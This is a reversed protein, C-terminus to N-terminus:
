RRRSSRIAAAGRGRLLGADDFRPRCWGGEAAREALAAAVDLRALADAAAAIPEARGLAAEVLEEFHAAEAALAHAGAQGVRLAQEHLDPANFRVM